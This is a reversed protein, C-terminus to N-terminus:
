EKFGIKKRKPSFLPRSDEIHDLREFVIKFIQTVDKELREVKESVREELAFYSRLKVFIRMISINVIIARESNLISSLMAIGLETFVYPQYRRGGKGENSTVKQCRLSEFEEKSLQFMFDSPFRKQNRKVQRNLYKTEVGYLNALDSDLMVRHGRIEYIMNQIQSVEIQM